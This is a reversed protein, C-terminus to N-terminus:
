DCLQRNDTEKDSFCFLRSQNRGQKKVKYLESDALNFFSDFSTRRSNFDQSWVGGISLTLYESCKSLPNPLELKQIAQQLQQIKTEIEVQQLGYCLVLFEDGGYRFLYSFDSDFVAQMQQAIRKLAIDGQHHGHCDNYGKYYDVDIMLTTFPVDQDAANSILKPAIKDLQYRNSLHTLPDTKSLRDLKDNARELKHRQERNELAIAIFNALQEFLNCHHHQYQETLHHQISLLGLVREELIIPTLIISQAPKVDDNYLVSDREKRFEKPVFQNITDENIHNLHVTARNQIVYSGVSHETACHIQVPEVPGDLDYFYRYDLIQSDQNYLAIGFEESPIIEGIQKYLNPLLESIDGSTAIAQGIRTIVGINSRIKSVLNREQEVTAEQVRHLINSNERRQVQTLLSETVEIYRQQLKILNEFQGFKRALNIKTQCLIKYFSANQERDILSDLQHCLQEARSDIGQKELYQAYFTLNETCNHKDQLKNYLTNATDFHHVVSEIPYHDTLTMIQAIYSHAIAVTREVNAQVGLDMAQQIHAIAEDYYGQHGLAYGMNLLCIAQNPKHGSNRGCAEGLAALQYAEDYQELSLLLDSINTYALSLYIDDLLHSNDLVQKFVHYAQNFEERDSHVSGQLTMVQLKLTTDNQGCLEICKSYEVLADDLNDARDYTLGTLFAAHAMSLNCRYKECIERTLTEMKAVGHLGPYHQFQAFVAQIEQLAQANM